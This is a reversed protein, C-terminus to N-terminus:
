THFSPGNESKFRASSKSTSNTISYKIFNYYYIIQNHKTPGKLLFLYTYQLIIRAM